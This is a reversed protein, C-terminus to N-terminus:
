FKMTNCNKNNESQPENKEIPGQSKFVTKIKHNANIISDEIELKGIDTSNIALFNKEYPHEGPTQKPEAVM